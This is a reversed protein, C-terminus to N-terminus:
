LLLALSFISFAFQRSWTSVVENKIGLESIWHSHLCYKLQHFHSHPQRLCPPDEWGSWSCIWLKAHLKRLRSRPCSCNGPLIQQSLLPEYVEQSRVPELALRTWARPVDPLLKRWVFPPFTPPSPLPFGERLAEVRCLTASHGRVKVHNPYEAHPCTLGSLVRSCPWTCAQSVFILIPQM